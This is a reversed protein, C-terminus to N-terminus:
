GELIQKVRMLATHPSTLIATRDIDEPLLDVVRAMSAQALIVLDTEKTMKRIARILLRDHSLVDGSMLASFAGEVLKVRVELSKGEQGARNELSLRTPELTTPNTALVGLKPGLQVAAELMAEDIKFVPL